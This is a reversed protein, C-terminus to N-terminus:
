YTEPLKKQPPVPAEFLHYRTIEETLESSGIRGFTSVQAFCDHNTHRGNNLGAWRSVAPLISLVRHVIVSIQMGCCRPSIIAVSHVCGGAGEGGLFVLFLRM